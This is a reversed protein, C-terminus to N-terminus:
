LHQGQKSIPIKVFTNYPCYLEFYLKPSWLEKIHIKRGKPNSYGRTKFLRFRYRLGQLVWATIKSVTVCLAMFLMSGSLWTLHFGQAAMYLEFKRFSPWSFTHKEHNFLFYQLQLM